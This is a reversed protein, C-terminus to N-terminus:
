SPNFTSTVSYDIKGNLIAEIKEAKDMAAKKALEFSALTGVYCASNISRDRLETIYGQVTQVIIITMKKGTERNTM